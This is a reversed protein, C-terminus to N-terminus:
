LRTEVYSITFRTKGSPSPPIADVFEFTVRFAPDAHARIAAALRRQIAEESGPRRLVLRILLHDRADQVVQFQKVDELGYFLHTFFEGHLLKGSPSVILDSRRGLIRALRVAPSGCPCADEAAEGADETDYRIFPQVFNHLNTVVIRGAVAPQGHVDVIEVVNAGSSIHLGAHAHCEHAIIGVERCGYRDFVPVGLTKEIFERDAAALVEASSQVARLSPPPQIGTERLFRCYMVLSRAYGVLLVPAHAKIAEAIRPLDDEIIDFTNVWLLNRFCRDVLRSLASKHAASDADSGWLFAIPDGLRYNCRMYLRQKDANAWARYNADQLFTVPRGTSGGTHNKQVGGWLPRESRLTDGCEQVVDRTLVPLHQLDAITRFDEASAGNARAWDRYWPVAEFAHRLLARLREAQWRERLEAPANEIQALVEMRRWTGALAYAAGAAGRLVTSHLERFGM